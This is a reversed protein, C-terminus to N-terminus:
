FVADPENPDTFGVVKSPTPVPRPATAPHSADVLRRLCDVLYGNISQGRRNLEPDVARLLDVSVLLRVIQRGQDDMSPLNQHSEIARLVRLSMLGSLSTYTGSEIRSLAAQSFGSSLAVECQTIGRERRMDLLAAAVKRRAERDLKGTSFANAISTVTAHNQDM